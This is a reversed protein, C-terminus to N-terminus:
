GLLKKRFLGLKRKDLRTRLLDVAADIGRFNESAVLRFFEAFSVSKVRIREGVDQKPLSIRRCDRAMFLYCKYDIKFSPEYTRFLEWDESALGGEELLERKAAQLPTEGRDQRGGFFCYFAKGRPQKQLAVLIRNGRTAIIEVTNPRKVAEFTSHSGDFMRQKW